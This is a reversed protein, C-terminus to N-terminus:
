FAYQWGVVLMWDQELRPGDLYQYLPFSAEIGFRNGALLGRPVLFNMGLAVDLRRGAQRDPDSTPVLQPNLRDDAGHINGWQRWDLRLSTSLWDLWPRAGWATLDYADGLRYGKDNRATRVVGTAQAGWSFSDSQGTYTLGPLLDYSGSGLQMPYPLRKNGAPTGDRETISGTPFSVGFNLHLHNSENEWLRTLAGLKFDGVGWSNTTFKTGTRTVHDMENVLIPLMSTLTVRQIPAWMLGVMHMQATMSMPAVMFDRLVEGDTVRSTGDINDDMDMVMYRYSVMWGGADHMHDGMVGIPAHADPRPTAHHADPAAGLCALFLVLGPAQVRLRLM